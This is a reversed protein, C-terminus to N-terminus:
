MWRGVGGAEMGGPDSCGLGNAGAEVPAGYVPVLVLKLLPERSAMDVM